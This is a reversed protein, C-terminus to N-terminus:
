QGSFLKYLGIILIINLGGLSHGIWKESRTHAKSQFYGFTFGLYLFPVSIVLIYFILPGGYDFAKDIWGMSRTFSKDDDPKSMVALITKIGSISLLLWLPIVLGLWEKSM